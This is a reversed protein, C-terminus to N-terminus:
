IKPLFPKGYDAMFEASESDDSLAPLPVDTGLKALVNHDVDFVGHVTLEGSNMEARNFLIKINMADALDQIIKRANSKPMKGYITFWPLGDEFDFTYNSIGYYVELSWKSVVSNFAQELEVINKTNITSM